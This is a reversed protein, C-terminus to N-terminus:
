FILILKGIRYRQNNNDVDSASVQPTISTTMAEDTPESHARVSVTTPTANEPTTNWSRRNDTYNNPHSHNQQHPHYHNHQHSNIHQRLTSPLITQTVVNNSSVYGSQDVLIPRCTLYRPTPQSLDLMLDSLAHQAHSM